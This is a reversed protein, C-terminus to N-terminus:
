LAAGEENPLPAVPPAEVAPAPAPAAEVPPAAESATPAVESQSSEETAVPRPRALSPSQSRLAELEIMADSISGAQVDGAVEGGQEVAEGEVPSVADEACATLAGALMVVAIVRANLGQM